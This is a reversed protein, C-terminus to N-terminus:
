YEIPKWEIVNRLVHGASPYVFWCDDMPPNEFCHRPVQMLEATTVCIENLINIFKVNVRNPMDSTSYEPLGDEVSIWRQAFRVGSKFAVSSILEPNSHLIGKNYLPNSCAEDISEM